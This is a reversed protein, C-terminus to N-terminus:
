EYLFRYDSLLYTLVAMWARVTYDGDNIVRREEPYDRGTWYDRRGQCAGAIQVPLTEDIIGQRGEKWTEYFLEYTRTVEPGGLAVREGLIHWHLHQINTKIAGVAQTIEFGHEDEPLYTMEVHKFYRRSTIDQAFDRATTQCAVENAMRQQIAAMIGNPETMREIVDLSDIGGYLRRYENTDLLYDARDVRPRWPYGTVAQIKRNLMEPTLLRGTGLHALQLQRDEDLEDLADAARYYPSRIIAKIVIRINHNNARLEAALTDLFHRQVEYAKLEVDYNRSDETRPLKLPDQGTLAKYLIHVIALDFRKDSAVQAALWSLSEMRDTVPLDLSGFGPAHMEPHWQEPPNYNGQEDWNQFAGAVPDVVAHCVSCQPDNLTPNHAASTPDIPREALKLVDTAIFLDYVIRSRHRNRNTATTPFRNLFMPSSLVGAHPLGPIRGQRWENPDNRDDWDIDEIGYVKATFPNVVMYDATLLDTIPLENRVLFTVLELPERAVSNNTHTRAAEYFAADEGTNDELHWRANPYYEQNLLDVANNRGLYRDTLFLDNFIEKLRDYFAEERMMRDMIPELAEDGGEAVLAEEDADPLRGVLGRSVRRLTQDAPEIKVDEFFDADAVEQQCEVPNDLRLLMEELAANYESDADFVKGGGHDFDGLPKALVLPTGSREYTAMEAFIELNAELFGAQGPPQYVMKSARAAGQPNHCNYCQKELVPTWVQKLFFQENSICGDEDTTFSPDDNDAPTKEAGCATLLGACLLVGLARTPRLLRALSRLDQTM